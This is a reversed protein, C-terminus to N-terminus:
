ELSSWRTWLIAKELRISCIDMASMSSLMNALSRLPMVPVRGIKMVESGRAPVVMRSVARDCTGPSAVCRYRSMGKRIAGISHFRRDFPKRLSLAM